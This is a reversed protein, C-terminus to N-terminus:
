VEDLLKMATYKAESLETVADVFLFEALYKEFAMPMGERVVVCTPPYRPYNQEWKKGGVEYFEASREEYKLMFKPSPHTPMLNHEEAYDLVDKPIKQVKKAICVFSARQTAEGEKAVRFEVLVHKEKKAEVV